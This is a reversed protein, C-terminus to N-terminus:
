SRLFKLVIALLMAVVSFMVFLVAVGFISLDPPGDKAAPTARGQIRPFTRPGMPRLWPRMEPKAQVSPLAKRRKALKQDREDMAKWYWDRDQLGM